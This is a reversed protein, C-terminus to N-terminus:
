FKYAVNFSLYEGTNRDNATVTEATEYSVVGFNAGVTLNKEVEKNWAFEGVFTTNSNSNYSTGSSHDYSGFSVNVNGFRSPLHGTAKVAFSTTDSISAEDRGMFEGASRIYTYLKSVRQNSINVPSNMDSGDTTTNFAINVNWVPNIDYGFNAGLMSMSDDNDYGTNTAFSYQIGLNLDVTFKSNTSIYTALIGNDQAYVWAQIPFLKIGNFMAGLVGIPSTDDDANRFSRFSLDDSSNGRFIIGGYLFTNTLSKNTVSVLDYSNEIPRYTDSFVLPTDLKTRGATFITDTTKYKIYSESIVANSKRTGQINHDFGLSDIGTLGIGVKINDNLDAKVGLGVFAGLRSSDTDFYDLNRNSDNITDGMIGVKGDLEVNSVDISAMSSIPLLSIMALSMLINKKM